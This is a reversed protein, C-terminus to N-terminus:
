NVGKTTPVYVYKWSCEWCFVKVPDHEDYNIWLTNKVGCHPCRKGNWLKRHRREVIKFTRLPSRMKRRLQQQPTM